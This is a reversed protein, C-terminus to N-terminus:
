GGRRPSGVLRREVRRRAAFSARQISPSSRKQAARAGRVAFREDTLRWDRRLRAHSAELEVGVREDEAAARRRRRGPGSGAHRRQRHRVVRAQVRDAQGAEDRHEVDARHDRRGDGGEAHVQPQNEPSPNRICWAWHEIEENYGRSVNKPTAAQAVAAGGGTEYTNLAAKGDKGEKVEIKTSADGGKFLMVEQERELILTGKTGMVVEGYGGFGNGNISSYTVVIKKNPDAVKDQKKIDEYYGKGPFEFNCYVHDDCERDAPFLSRVGIGQM